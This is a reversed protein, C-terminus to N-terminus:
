KSISQDAIAKTDGTTCARYSTCEMARPREVKLCAGPNNFRCDHCLYKGSGKWLRASYISLASMLVVVTINFTWFLLSHEM